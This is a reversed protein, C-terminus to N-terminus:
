EITIFLNEDNRILGFLKIIASRSDSIWDKKKPSYTGCLICGYTDEPKNGSHIRVGTYGPVSLLLPLEKRFSPSYNWIIKYTGRPIATLGYIKKDIGVEELRRDTDELTDCIKVGKYYLEGITSKDSFIKRKLTINSM